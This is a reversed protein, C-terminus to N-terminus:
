KSVLLLQGVLIHEEQLSNLTKLEDVTLGYTKSISFATEGAKVEHIRMKVPPKAEAKEPEEAVHQQIAVLVKEERQQKRGPTEPRDYRYLEYREILDILLDAYRPNTAYGARKLGQAWGKYDDKNLEFLAAYRKRLLFQSHDRFSEEPNNYSRFCDDTSDDDKLVYRGKWDGACKIGFHNNAQLALASNGNGSELLAQALKISAPIGYQDMEAIAIDKYNDIYNQASTSTRPLTNHIVPPRSDKGKAPGSSQLVRQKPLCGGLLLLVSFLVCVKKM